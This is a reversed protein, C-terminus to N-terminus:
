SGNEVARAAAAADITATRAQCTSNLFKRLEYAGHVNLTFADEEDLAFVLKTRVGTGEWRVTTRAM